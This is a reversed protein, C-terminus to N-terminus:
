ALLTRAALTLLSYMYVCLLASSLVGQAISPYQALILRGMTCTTNPDTLICNPHMHWADHAIGHNYKANGTNCATPDGLPM